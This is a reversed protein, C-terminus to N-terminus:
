KKAFEGECGMNTLPAYKMKPDKLNKDESFFKMQSLQRKITDIVESLVSSYLKLQGEDSKLYEDRAQTLIEMKEDFFNKVGDWSREYEESDDCDDIGLVNMLPLIIDNGLMSYVELCCLFWGSQIYTSVALVLKNANEDVTANFFDIISLRRSLFEKAIETIRGFRNADFGKFGDHEKGNSAMWCKYDNYLSVSQAAHSPSLLKAIAIQALTHTSTGPSSFVKEGASNHLLKQVGIKQEINCFVKDCAHDIGLIIHASCKLIKEPDVGLYELLTGCDGARDSMWFDIHSMVEELSSGTLMALVKLKYEYAAGGDEGSHSINEAYGTTFSKRKQNPGKVTIHDTKIDYLKHGAAKTTDDLGVTVVNDGKNLMMEGVMHLNLLSADELYRNLSRSSPFVYTYDKLMKRRKPQSSSVDSDSQVPVNEGAVDSEVTESNDDKAKESENWEQQFIMNAVSVIIGSLDDASIKYKSFCHVMCRVIKENLIRYSERCKIKPFKLIVDEGTITTANMPIQSRTKVRGEAVPTSAAEPLFLDSTDDLPRGDIDEEKLSTEYASKRRDAELKQEQCLNELKETESKERKEKRATSKQWKKSVSSTCIAKYNGFCNDEYYAEDEKAMTVGHLTGLESKRNSDKTRINYAHNTM